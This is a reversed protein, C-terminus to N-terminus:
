TRRRAVGSLAERRKIDVPHCFAVARTWTVFEIVHRHSSTREAPIHRHHIPCTPAQAKHRRGSRQEHIPQQIMSDRMTEVSSPVFTWTPTVPCRDRHPPETPPGPTRATGRLHGSRVVLRAHKTGRAAPRRGTRHCRRVVGQLVSLRIDRDLPIRRHVGGHVLRVQRPDMLGVQEPLEGIRWDRHREDSSREVDSGCPRQFLEGCKYRLCGELSDWVHGVVEPSSVGIHPHADDSIGQWV